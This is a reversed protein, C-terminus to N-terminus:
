ILFYFPQNEKKQISNGILDYNSNKNIYTFAFYSIVLIMGLISIQIILSRNM